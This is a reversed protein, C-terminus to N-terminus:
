SQPRRCGQRKEDEEGVMDSDACILWLGLHGVPAVRGPRQKQESSAGGEGGGVGSREGM